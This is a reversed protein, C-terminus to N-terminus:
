SSVLKFRQLWQAGTLQENPLVIKGDCDDLARCFDEVAKEYIVDVTM